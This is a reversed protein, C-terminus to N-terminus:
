QDAEQKEGKFIQVGLASATGYFGARFEQYVPEGMSKYDQQFAVASQTQLIGAHFSNMSVDVPCGEEGNTIYITGFLGNKMLYRAIKRAAQKPTVTSSKNM